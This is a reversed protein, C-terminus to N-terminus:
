KVEYTLSVSVNIEQEGAPISPAAMDSGGGARSMMVREDMMMPMPYSGNGGEGYGIFDGLKQGLSDALKQARDKADAIAEERAEIRLDDIDDITFSVGGVQNSGQRIAVDLINSIQELDRVKVILNQNAEFGAEKRKGDTYDYAPNLRLNQTTIDKEEVGSSKIESIINNMKTTLVEMAVQATNQRGTQVGFQLMAIDPVAMIKGEGQVTISPQMNPEAEIVKGAIFSGGLIIAAIISVIVPKNQTNEM